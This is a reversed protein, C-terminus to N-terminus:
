WMRSGFQLGAEVQIAHDGLVITLEGYAGGALSCGGGGRRRCRCGWGSRWGRRWFDNALVREHQPNNRFKVVYYHGDDCRM